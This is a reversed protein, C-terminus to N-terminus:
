GGEGGGGDSVPMTSEPNIIGIVGLILLLVGMFIMILGDPVNGTYTILPVDGTFVTWLVAGGLVALGVSIIRHTGTSLYRAM